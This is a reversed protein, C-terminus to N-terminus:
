CMTNSSKLGGVCQWRIRVKGSELPKAAASFPWWNWERGSYTEFFGKIKDFTSTELAKIFEFSAPSSWLENPIYVEQERKWLIFVIIKRSIRRRWQERKASTEISARQIKNAQTESRSGQKEDESSELVVSVDGFDSHSCDAHQSEHNSSQGNAHRTPPAGPSAAIEQEWRRQYEPPSLHINEFAFIDKKNKLVQERLAAM